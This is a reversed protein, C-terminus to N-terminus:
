PEYDSELLKIEKFKTSFKDILNNNISFIEWYSSDIMQIVIDCTEYMERDSKYRKILDINKCGLLDIDIVQTFKKALIKLDDWDIFFGKESERIYDEFLPMSKNEGLNGTADLFLISWTYLNGNEIEELIDSLNVSVVDNINDYIRIGRTIM